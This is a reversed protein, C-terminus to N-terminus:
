KPRTEFRPISADMQVWPQASRTFCDLQPKFWSADELTASRISVFGASGEAFLPTGCTPCFSRRAIRGEEGRTEFVRVEGTVRLASTKVVFGSAFPAGSAQQCDRCHCNAMVVPKATCTYQV